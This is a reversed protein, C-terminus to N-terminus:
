LESEAGLRPVEMHWLHPGLFVLFLFFLKKLELSVITCFTLHLIKTLYAFNYNM